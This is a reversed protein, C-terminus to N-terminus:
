SRGSPPPLRKTISRGRPSDVGPSQSQAAPGAWRRAEIRRAALLAAACIGLGALVDFVFHNATVVVALSMAVTAVIGLALVLASRGWCLMGLALAYWGIHFSPFAAYPNVLGSPHAVYHQRSASSVTDVFGELMRPPAVPYSAFILLGVAGSLFLADRLMRYRRKDTRWTVILAGIVAPWYTWVYLSNFFDRGVGPSGLARQAGMELDLGLRQEWRLLATANRIAVAESGATLARVALYALLAAVVVVLQTALRGVHPPAENRVDPV